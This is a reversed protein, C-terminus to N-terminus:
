RGVMGSFEISFYLRKLEPYQDIRELLSENCVPIIETGNEQLLSHINQYAKSRTNMDKNSYLYVRDIAHPYMEVIQKASKMIESYNTESDFFKSQFSIRKGDLKKCSQPAVEVGPHNPDNQLSQGIQISGDDFFELFFLKRCLLEFESRPNRQILAFLQWSRNLIAPKSVYDPIIDGLLDAVRYVTGDDGIVRTIENPESQLLRRVSFRNEGRVIYDSIPQDFPSVSTTTRGEQLEGDTNIGLLQRISIFMPTISIKKEESWIDIRMTQEDSKREIFATCNIMPQTAIFGNRWCSVLEMGNIMCDVMLRQLTAESLYRYRLECTVRHADKSPQPIETPHDDYRCNAPFFFRDPQKRHPFVLYNEKAVSLIYESDNFDKNYTMDPALRLKRKAKSKTNYLCKDIERKKVWGDDFICERIIAYLANTIWLPNVVRYDHRVGDIKADKRGYCVGLKTFLGVVGTSDSIRERDCIASFQDESLYSEGRRELYDIVDDRLRLLSEPQRGHREDTEVALKILPVMIGDRFEDYKADKVSLSHFDLSIDGRFEHELEIRDYDATGENDYINAIVMVTSGHALDRICNLWYRLRSTHNANRSSIMIVYVTDETLFCRHMAHDIEQGGFDWFRIIFTDDKALSTDFKSRVEELLDKPVSYNVCNIGHTQGTSFPYRVNKQLKGGSRFRNVTYTKGSGGDGLFVVKAERIFRQNSEEFFRQLVEKGAFYAPPLKSDAAFIGPQPFPPMISDVIPLRGLAISKPISNIVTNSININRIELNSLVMPFSDINTNSLDISKLQNLQRLTDPLKSILTDSVDLEQLCKLQGITDPLEAIPNHSIDLKYIKQLQGICAPLYTIHTRSLNLSQLETFWSIAEPLFVFQEGHFDLEVVKSCIQSLVDGLGFRPDFLISSVDQITFILWPCLTSDLSGSIIINDSIVNVSSVSDSHGVMTQLCNGSLTDWLRLTKDDSGSIIRGDRLMAACTVPGKHGLLVQVCYGYFSDWVRLTYDDSGSVIRGDACVAIFTVKKTHGELIILCRGTTVDWIRLTLDESGSVVRGDPLIGVQTIRGHHGNLSQLCEGKDPDWVRLTKDESGSIVHGDPLFAVQTISGVHGTLSHLCQGTVPDWVRLTNDDSGSVVRGDPLVAVCTVFGKHGVMTQLCQGTLTDWVRLTNDESGSVVRGDPLAAVCRVSKTHGDLRTQGIIGGNFVVIHETTKWVRLTGDAEGIVIQGPLVATCNIQGYCNISDLSHSTVHGSNCRLNKEEIYNDALESLLSLKDIGVALSMIRSINLVDKQPDFLYGTTQQTYNQIVVAETTAPVVYLQWQFSKSKRISLRQKSIDLKPPVRFSASTCVQVAVHHVKDILNIGMGQQESMNVTELSLDFLVNLFERYFNLTSEVSYQNGDFLLETEHAIAILSNRITERYVVENQHPKKIRHKSSNTSFYQAFSSLIAGRLNDTNSWWWVIKTMVKRRFLELRDRGAKSKETKEPPLTEPHQHLFALVPKGTQVAYDYEMEVYSAKEGNDNIFSSGYHGGIILVFIDSEDIAKRAREWLTMGSAPITSMDIPYYGLQLVTQMAIRREEVLDEYTSSLFVQITEEM